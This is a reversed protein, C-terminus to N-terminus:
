YDARFVSPAPTAFGCGSSNLRLSRLSRLPPFCESQTRQTSQPQAAGNPIVQCADGSDSSARIAARSKMAASLSCDAEYSLRSEANQRKAKAGSVDMPAAARRNDGAEPAAGGAVGKGENRAYGSRRGGSRAGTRRSGYRDAGYSCSGDACGRASIGSGSHGAPALGKASPKLRPRGAQRECRRAQNACSLSTRPKPSATPRCQSAAMGFSQSVSISFYQGATM